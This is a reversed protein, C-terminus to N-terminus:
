APRSAAPRDKVHRRTVLIGVISGVGSGSLAAAGDGASGASANV